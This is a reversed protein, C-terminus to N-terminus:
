LTRVFRLHETHKKAAIKARLLDRFEGAIFGGTREHLMCHLVGSRRSHDRMGRSRVRQEMRKVVGGSDLFLNRHFIKLYAYNTRTRARNFGDSETQCSQYRARANTAKPPKRQLSEQAFALILRKKGVLLCVQQNYANRVLVAQRLGVLQDLRRRLEKRKRRISRDIESQSTVFCLWLLDGRRKSAAQHRAGTRGSGGDNTLGPELNSVRRHALRKAERVVHVHSGFDEGAHQEPEEKKEEGVNPQTGQTRDLRWGSVWVM